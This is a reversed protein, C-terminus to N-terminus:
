CVSARISAAPLSSDSLGMEKEPITVILKTPGPNEVMEVPFNNLHLLDAVLQANERPVWIKIKRM